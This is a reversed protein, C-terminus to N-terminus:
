QLDFAILLQFSSDDENLRPIFKKNIKNDELVKGKRFKTMIAQFYTQTLNCEKRITRKTQEGMLVSDLVNTDKIVKSLEYRHKLFCALVEIERETLRHFPKLFELWYQFFKNKASSPITIVNNIKGM